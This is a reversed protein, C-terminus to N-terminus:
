RKKPRRGREHITLYCDKESNLIVPCYSKGKLSNKRLKDSSEGVIHLSQAEKKPTEGEM